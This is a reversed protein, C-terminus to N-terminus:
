IKILKNGVIKQIKVPTSNGAHDKSFSFKGLPTEFTETELNHVLTETNGNSESIAQALVYTTVYAQAAHLEPGHGFRETFKKTFNADDGLVDWNLVVVGQLASLDTGKKNLMDRIDEHTILQVNWGLRKSEIAFRTFDDGLMDAFIMDVGQKKMKLIYPGWDTIGFQNYTEEVVIGKNNKVSINNLTKTIEEGFGSTYHIVALKKYPTKTLYGDLAYVITSFDSLTTFSNKNTDVSGVIRASTPTIIVTNSTSAVGFLASVVFDFNSGIIADVHDLSTLKKYLGVGTKPDTADDEHILKVTRGNIGGNKNIEEMALTAGNKSAEGYASAIGTQSIITGILIPSNNQATRPSQKYFFGFYGIIVVIISAIIKKM